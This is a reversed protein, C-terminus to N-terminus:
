SSGGSSSPLARRILEDEVDDLCRDWEARSIQWRAYAENEDGVQMVPKNLKAFQNYQAVPVVTGSRGGGYVFLSVAQAARALAKIADNIKNDTVRVDGLRARENPGGAHALYTNAWKVLEDAGSHDLWREITTVLRHPLRDERDRKAPDIGALKDFHQHLLESAGDAEPGETAGWMFVVKEGRASLREFQADRVALYDYPLGDYCVYNERTFLGVHRRLDKVLSRLSLREKPTDEVLRRIALVQAAVHGTVLAEAVLPNNLANEDDGVAFATLAKFAVDTWVMTHLTPWIAHHKDTHLWSLWVRRRERFRLLADRRGIPVDCQDVGYAYGDEPM